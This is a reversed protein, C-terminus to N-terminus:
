VCNVSVKTVGRPEVRISYPLEGTKSLGFDGMRSVMVVTYEESNYLVTDGKLIGNFGVVEGLNKFVKGLDKFAVTVIGKNNEEVTDM